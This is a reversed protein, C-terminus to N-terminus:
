EDESEKPKAFERQDEPIEAPLSPLHIVHDVGTSRLATWVPDEESIVTKLCYLDAGHVIFQMGLSELASRTRYDLGICPQLSIGSEKSSAKLAQVFHTMMTTFGHGFQRDFAGDFSFDTVEVGKSSPSGLYAIGAEVGTPKRRFYPCPLFCGSFGSAMYRRISLAILISNASYATRLNEEPVEPPQQKIAGAESEGCKMVIGYRAGNVEPGYGVLGFPLASRLAHLKQPEPDAFLIEGQSTVIKM